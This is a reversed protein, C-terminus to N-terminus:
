GRENLVELSTIPHSFTGYDASWQVKVVARDVNVVLGLQQREMRALRRTTKSLDGVRCQAAGRVRWASCSGPTNDDCYIMKIHPYSPDTEPFRFFVETLIAMGGSKMMVLDGVKLDKRWENKSM